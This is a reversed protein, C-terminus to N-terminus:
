DGTKVKRVYYVAVQIGFGVIVFLPSLSVIFLIVMVPKGVSASLEVLDVGSLMGAICVSIITSLLLRIMFKALNPEKNITTNNETDMVLEKESFEVGNVQYEDTTIHKDEPKNLEASGRCLKWAFIYFMLLGIISVPVDMGHEIMFDSMTDFVAAIASDPYKSIILIFGMALAYGITYSILLGKSSVTSTDEKTKKEEQIVTQINSEYNRCSYESDFKKGDSAVYKGTVNNYKM